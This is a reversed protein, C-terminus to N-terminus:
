LVSMCFDCSFTTKAIARRVFKINATISVLTWTGLLADPAQKVQPLGTIEIDNKLSKQMVWYEVRVEKPVSMLWM